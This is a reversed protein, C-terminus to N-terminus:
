RATSRSASRGPGPLPVPRVRGAEATARHTAALSPTRRRWSRTGPSCRPGGEPGPTSRGRSPAPRASASGGAISWTWGPSGQSEETFRVDIETAAPRRPNVHWALTLRAPPDWLVVTGWGAETGDTMVEYLRGGLRAEFVLHDVAVGREERVMAAVSHTEIPWWAGISQTFIRFADEPPRRVTVSRRIPELSATEGVAVGENGQASRDM